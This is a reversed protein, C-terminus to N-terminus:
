IARRYNGRCRRREREAQTRAGSHNLRWSALAPSVGFREAAIEAPVSDRALQLAGARPILLEGALWDAEAEMEPTWVRAGSKARVPQPAHEALTHSLEHCMSNSRRSASHAPNEIILRFSGFFLTMASFEGGTSMLHRASKEVGGWEEVDRLSYVPIALHEALKRPDLRDFATLGLEARVELGLREADAKFGRRLKM